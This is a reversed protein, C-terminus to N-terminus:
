RIAVAAHIIDRDSHPEKQSVIEYVVIGFSWVDSSKSYNKYAIAEPAMWCVPGINANTKGEQSQMLIRSMGFDSIKLHCDSGILINRAALDRHVINHQHLHYMGSAIQRTWDVMEEKSIRNRRRYLMKDLSGGSCYELVIVPQPGDIAIGLMQIVNPHRPLDLMLQAERLFEDVKDQHRCFKLAVSIEPRRKWKGVYVKGYSGEGIEKAAELEAFPIQSVMKRAMSQQLTNLVVSSSRREQSFSNPETVTSAESLKHVSKKRRRHRIIIIIIVIVVIVLVFFGVLSGIVVALSSINSNPSAFNSVVAPPTFQPIHTPGFTLSNSSPSQLPSTSTTSSAVVPSSLSSSVIPSSSFTFIDVYNSYPPSNSTYGGGFFIQNQSSAAALASRSQSLSDTFWVNGTVNYMDVVNYYIYCNSGGGFAVIDEVSAAALLHRALSLTATSWTANTANFIDVQSSFSNATNGGGFFALNGLSTAALKYRAQSLTSTSWTEYLLNYIDVTNSPGSAGYGGAFLAYQNAIATAALAYRAQSLIATTWMNSTMNYIDVVNFPNSNNDSCGGGFFVLNGVSVAALDYRPQTLAATSWSGDTANYIDVQNYFNTSGDWGGAFFVLNDSSTAALASRPISLAATTWSRIAVNYIDVQSSASFDFGGGFLVLDGSSAAALSSRTQSLYQTAHMIGQQADVNTAIRCVDNTLWFVLVIVLARITKAEPQFMNKHTKAINDVSYVM